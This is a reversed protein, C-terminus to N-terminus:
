WSTPGACANSLPNVDVSPGEMLRAGVSPDGHRFDSRLTLGFLLVRGNDGTDARRQKRAMAFRGRLPVPHGLYPLSKPKQFFLPQVRLGGV